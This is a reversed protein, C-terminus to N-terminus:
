CLEAIEKRIKQIVELAAFDKNVRKQVILSIRQRESESIGSDAELMTSDILYARLNDRIEQSMDDLVNLFTRDIDVGESDREVKFDRIIQVEDTFYMLRVTNTKRRRNAQAMLQELSVVCDSRRGLGEFCLTNFKGENRATKKM